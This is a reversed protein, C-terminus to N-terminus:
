LSNVNLFWHLDGAAKKVLSHGAGHISIESLPEANSKLWSRIHQRLASDSIKM